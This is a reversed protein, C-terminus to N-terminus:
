IYKKGVSSKIHNELLSLLCFQNAARDKNQESYEIQYYIDNNLYDTLFRLAQMYVILKGSLDISELEDKTLYQSMASLYGDRIAQYFDERLVMSQIDAEGESISPTMSRFMDGIDSFFLGPQTTDLDIPSFIENTNEDFLINAIKCDHHLIHLPYQKPLTSLAIGVM